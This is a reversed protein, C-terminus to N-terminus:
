GFLSLMYLLCQREGNRKIRLNPFFFFHCAVCSFKGKSWAVDQQHSVDSCRGGVVGNEKESRREWFVCLPFSPFPYVRCAEIKDVRAFYVRRLAPGVCQWNCTERGAGCPLLVRGARGSGRLGRM